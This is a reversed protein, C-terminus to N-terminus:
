GIPPDPPDLPWNGWDEEGVWTRGRGHRRAGAFLALGLAAALLTSLGALSTVMPHCAVACPIDHLSM